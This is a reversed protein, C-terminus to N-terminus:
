EWTAGLMKAANIASTVADEHLGVGFHSGCYYSHRTGNLGPLEKITPVSSFDFIPTRLVTTFEIKDEAIPFNPHQSSFYPSDEPV